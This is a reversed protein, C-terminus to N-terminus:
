PSVQPFIQLADDALRLFENEAVVYRPQQFYSFGVGSVYIGLGHVAQAGAVALIAAYVQSRYLPVGIRVANIGLLGTDPDLLATRVAQMVRDAVHDRDVVLTFWIWVPLAVAPRVVIPRNPDAFSALAKRAADVANQDDGAYVTVGARQTVADWGWVASARAVGATQAALTEYDDGSVARNFTLVSRPAYRRIKAAPDPDAGGVAGVPDRLKVLHPQPRVVVTLAGPDPVTAGSGVRYSAVVNNVGTPLRAGAAGDGFRVHTKAAEDEFTVFVRADKAQGYFSPVEHWELEDVWVRLTSVYPVASGPVTAQVYTLPSKGLVFEQAAASADGSGLIERTVTQGRSLSLLNFHARLPVHLVAKSPPVAAFSLTAELSGSSSAKAAAGFGDRDDLLVPATEIHRPTEAPTRAFAPPTDLPVATVPPAVVRGADIWRVAIKTAARNADFSAADFLAPYAVVSHLIPVPVAGLATPPVAPNNGPPNTYWITESYGTVQTIRTNTDNSFVIPDGVAIARQPSDLHTTFKTIVADAPGSWPRVNLASHLVRSGSATWTGVLGQPLNKAFTVKTSVTGRASRIQEVAAVTRLQAHSPHTGFEPGVVLLTDGKRVSPASGELYCSFFDTTLLDPPIPEIAVTGGPALTTDADLEFTQPKGIAGPKSAVPYGRKVTIPSPGDIMAAIVATAAIGPRPRYGLMRILARVSADLSATRLYDENAIRDNYFELIEALYAFWEAMQLGLDLQSSPRWGALAIEGARASLLAHRYSVFDGNRYVIADRGAPNTAPRPHVVTECPCGPGAGNM